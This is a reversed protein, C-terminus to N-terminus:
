IPLTKKVDYNFSIKISFLILGLSIGMTKYTHRKSFAEMDYISHPYEIRLGLFIGGFKKFGHSEIKISCYKIPTLSYTM